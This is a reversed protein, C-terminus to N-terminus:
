VVENLSKKNFSQLISIFDKIGFYTALSGYLFYMGALAENAIGSQSVILIIALVIYIIGLLAALAAVVLSFVQFMKFYRPRPPLIHEYTSNHRAEYYSTYNLKYTGNAIEMCQEPVPNEKLSVRAKNLIVSRYIAGYTFFGFVILAFWDNVGYKFVTIGIVFTTVIFYIATITEIVTDRSLLKGFATVNGTYVNELIPVVDSVREYNLTAPMLRNLLWSLGWVIAIAVFFSNNDIFSNNILGLLPYILIWLVFYFSTKM